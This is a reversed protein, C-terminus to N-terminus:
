FQYDDLDLSWIVLPILRVLGLNSEQNINRSSGVILEEALNNRDFIGQRRKKRIEGFAIGM